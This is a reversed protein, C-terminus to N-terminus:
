KFCLLFGSLCPLIKYRGNEVTLISFYISLILFINFSCSIISFKFGLNLFFYALFFFARARLAAINSFAAANTLMAMLTAFPITSAVAAATTVNSSGKGQNGPHYSCSCQFCSSYYRLGISRIRHHHRYLSRPIFMFDAPNTCLPSHTALASITALGTNPGMILESSCARPSHYALNHLHLRVPFSNRRIRLFHILLQM